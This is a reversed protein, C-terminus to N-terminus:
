LEFAQRGAVVAVLATVALGSSCSVDLLLMQPPLEMAFYEWGVEFYRDIDAQEPGLMCAASNVSHVNAPENDEFGWKRFTLQDTVESVSVKDAIDEAFLEAELM